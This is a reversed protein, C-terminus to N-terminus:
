EVRDTWGSATRIFRQVDAVTFRGASWDHREVTIAQPTLHLVNFANAAERLRTSTATGAEVLLASRGGLRHRIASHAAASVHLHGTLFVDIGAQTLARLAQQNPSGDPLQSAARDGFPHHAVLVKVCDRDIDAVASRVRDISSTRIRADKLTSPRTTDIGIVVVRPHTYVPSTDASIYRRYGRLPDLMRVFVNFLPVDHNGPVVLHPAPLADLFARARRFQDRRARQTLDGSVAIILPDIATLQRHLADVVRRDERGFHLDSLHVIRLPADDNM